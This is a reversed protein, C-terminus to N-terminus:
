GKHDLLAQRCNEEAFGMEVLRKVAPHAKFFHFFIFSVFSFKFVCLSIPANLHRHEANNVSNVICSLARTKNSIQYVEISSGGRYVVIRGGKKCYNSDDNVSTSGAYFHILLLVRAKYQERVGVEVRLQTGGCGSSSSEAHCIVRDM